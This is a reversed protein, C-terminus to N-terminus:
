ANKKKLIGTPLFTEGCFRAPSFLKKVTDMKPFSMYHKTGKPNTHVDSSYGRALTMIHRFVTTPVFLTVPNVLGTAKSRTLKCKLSSGIEKLYSDILPGALKLKNGIVVELQSEM